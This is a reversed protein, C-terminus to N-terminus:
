LVSVFEIQIFAFQIGIGINYLVPWNLTFARPGRTIDGLRFDPSINTKAQNKWRRLRRRRLSERRLVNIKFFIQHLGELNQLSMGRPTLYMIM